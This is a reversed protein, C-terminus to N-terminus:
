HIIGSGVEHSNTDEELGMIVCLVPRSLDILWFDTEMGSLLLVIINLSIAAKSITSSERVM